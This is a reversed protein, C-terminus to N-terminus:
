EEASTVLKLFDRRVKSDLIFLQNRLDNYGSIDISMIGEAISKPTQKDYFSIWKSVECDEVAPFRASLVYLGNTLYSIIKSPFSTDAYKADPIQTALGIHCKQLFAAYDDGSLLGDYTLECACKKRVNNIREKLQLVQEPTGFGIIHIHYNSPLFEAAAAAAAGGKTPDFTGAYVCHIKGDDYHEALKPAVTYNGNVIIYDRSVPIRNVLGRTSLIFSDACSICKTEFARTLPSLSVVDQYIEELELILKYNRIRKSFHVAWSIAYSHYIIVTDNRSLSLLFHFVQLSRLWRQLRRAVGNPKGFGWFTRHTGNNGLPMNTSHFFGHDSDVEAWSVIEYDLDSRSLIDAFYASKNQGAPSICYRLKSESDPVYHTLYYIM